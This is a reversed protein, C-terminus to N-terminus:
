KFSDYRGALPIAEATEVGGQWYFNRPTFWTEFYLTM